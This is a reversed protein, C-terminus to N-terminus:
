LEERTRVDLTATMRHIEVLRGDVVEAVAMGNTIFAPSKAAQHAYDTLGTWSPTNVIDSVVTRDDLVIRVTERCWVHHHGRAVVRPPTRGNLLEEDMLSRLYYRPGNGELWKRSGPYTGHHAIDFTVGAISLLGHYLCKIDAKRDMAQLLEALAVEASARGYNHASTGAVIRMTHCNPLALWPALAGAAIKVQDSERESVWRAPYRTGQCADGNHIVVIEDGDALAIVEAKYTQLLEWLYEQTKTLQPTWTNGDDDVLQTGSAMLGLQHGSHSDSMLVVLVRRPSQRKRKRKKGM